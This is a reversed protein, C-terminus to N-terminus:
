YINQLTSADFLWLVFKEVCFAYIPKSEALTHTHAASMQQSRAYTCATKCMSMSRLAFSPRAPPHRLSVCFLFSYFQWLEHLAQHDAAACQEYNWKMKSKILSILITAANTHRDSSLLNLRFPPLSVLPSTAFRFIDNLNFRSSRQSNTTARHTHTHRTHRPNTEISTHTSM